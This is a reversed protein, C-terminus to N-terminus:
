SQDVDTTPFARNLGFVIRVTGDGGQQAAILSTGNTGAGGGAGRPAPFTGDFKAQTNFAHPLGSGHKTASTTVASLSLGSAGEGFIEVGGGSSGTTATHGGGAGGGGAPAAGGNETGTSSAGVGGAGSYGGAGGGGAGSNAVGDLFTGGVGGAGGTGVDVTGGAASTSDVNSSGAGGGAQCVIVGAVTVVSDGGPDALGDNNDFFGGLGVDITVTSGSKVRVNNVWVLAGGGGGGAQFSLGTVGGGGAGVSVISIRGVGDPVVWSYQGPSSFIAEGRVERRPLGPLSGGIAAGLKPVQPNDM